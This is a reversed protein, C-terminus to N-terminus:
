SVLTPPKQGRWKWLYKLWDKLHTRSVFHFLSLFVPVKSERHYYHVVEVEGVYYVKEGAIWTRRCLDEDGYYLFFREDFYSIKELLSRRIMMFSGQVWEVPRNKTSQSNDLFMEKLYHKGRQTKGLFTRRYFPTWFNSYKIFLNQSSKDPNILRPSAIGVSPHQDMFEILPTISDKLFVIDANLSLIYEGSSNKFGINHGKQHGINEASEFVKVWPFEKKAMESTGDHSGSDIMLVEFPFSLPLAQIGLLLQRVFGRDKYTNITISLKM